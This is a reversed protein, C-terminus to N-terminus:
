NGEKQERLSKCWAAVVAATVGPVSLLRTKSAKNFQVDSGDAAQVGDWGILVEDAIERDSMGGRGQDDQLDMAYDRGSRLLAEIRDQTLRKFRADFTQVEHRGGDVALGFEVPCSYGDSLDIVFAM